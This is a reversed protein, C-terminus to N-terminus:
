LRYNHKSFHSYCTANIPTATYNGKSLARDFSEMCGWSQSAGGGKIKAYGDMLELFGPSAQNALVICRRLIESDMVDDNRASLEHYLSLTEVRAWNWWSDYQRAKLADFQPKISEAFVEGYEAKWLVLQGGMAELTNKVGQLTIRGGDLDVQLHKALLELNQRLYRNQASSIAAVAETSVSATSNTRIAQTTSALTVGARNAYNRVASDLFERAVESSLRTAPEETLANLLVADQRETGLVWRSRLYARAATNNFDPPMKSM